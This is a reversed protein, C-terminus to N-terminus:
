FLKRVLGLTKTAIVNAREHNLIIVIGLINAAITAWTDASVSNEERLKYLKSMQDVMSAYETTSKDEVEEMKALLTMITEDVKADIPSKKFM